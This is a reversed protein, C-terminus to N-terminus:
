GAAVLLHYMSPRLPSSLSCLGSPEDMMVCGAGFVNQSVWVSELRCLSAM